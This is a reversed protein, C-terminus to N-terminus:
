KLPRSVTMHFRALRRLDSGGSKAASPGLAAYNRDSVHRLEQVAKFFTIWRVNPVHILARNGCCRTKPIAQLMKTHPLARGSSVRCQSPSILLMATLLRRIPQKPRTAMGM